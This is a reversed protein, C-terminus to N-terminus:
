DVLFAERPVHKLLQNAIGAFELSLKKQLQPQMARLVESGNERLFLNTAEATIYITGSEHQRGMITKCIGSTSM